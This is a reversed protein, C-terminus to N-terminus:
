PEASPLYISFQIATFLSAIRHFEGLLATCVDILPPIDSRLELLIENSM